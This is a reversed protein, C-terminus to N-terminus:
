ILSDLSRFALSRHPYLGFMMVNGRRGRNNSDVGAWGLM